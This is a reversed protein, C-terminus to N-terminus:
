GKSTKKPTVDFLTYALTIVHIDKPLDKDVNFILAMEKSEGGKLTQQNFCFCQVKHFHAISETPTMGPIAQITMARSTANKAHFSTKINEGPHVKIQKQNPFFDWPLGKNNVVVFQVTVERSLDQTNNAASTPLTLEKIPVSTNIGTVRCIVSYLPVMAFCFAFMVVAAIGGIIVIKRHSKQNQM